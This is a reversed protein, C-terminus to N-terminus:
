TKAKRMQDFMAKMEDYVPKAKGEVVEQLYDEFKIYSMDPYLEKSTLYGLFKAYAPTNDGRIAFSRQYQASVKQIFLPFNAGPDTGKALKEDADRIRAELERANSYERPIEEGSIRELASYVSNPAWLENYVFVYKNLTREDQIIRAVYRGIDRLDTLGSVQEGDGPIRNASPVGIAYDIKGSALNPFAIQYWWGVDVVTFPLALRKIHNYVEEKQDRLMHVGAPMVTVFACPLFLKVGAAKAATALPIQALQDSPGIASILIDVNKLAAVIPEQPGALDLARLEIGRGQM